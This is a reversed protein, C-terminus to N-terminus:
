TTEALSFTYAILRSQNPKDGLTQVYVALFLKRDSLVGVESSWSIGLANDFNKFTLILRLGEAEGSVLAPGDGSEFLLTFSLNSQELEVKSDGNHTVISGSGLVDRNGSKM